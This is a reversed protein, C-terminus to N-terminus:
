TVLDNEYTRLQKSIAILNTLSHNACLSFRLRATNKPVTPSRIPLVNFGQKQLTSALQVAATNGGIHYPVIHSQPEVALLRSFERSLTDLKLRQEKFDPLREFIFHTWAVNVPPLATSYIFSRAHNILLSKFIAKCVVFGGVSALAKGCAGVIFDVEDILDFEEACGLGTAGRVGVAHAEDVYLLSDYKNKLAVLQHLDATDGDMSFVSETLIFVQEYDNRYRQLLQELHEYDLHKYRMLTAKSLQAGDICSAHVFKDALILDNKSTLASLVGLNCQYGSNFLLCSEAKYSAAILAELGQHVQSNKLLLRSSSASFPYQHREFDNMFDAYLTADANLGLYDNSSFDVKYAVTDESITRLNGQTELDALRRFFSPHTEM